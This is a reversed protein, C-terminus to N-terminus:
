QDEGSGDRSTQDTGATDSVTATIASDFITGPEEGSGPVGQHERLSVTVDSWTDESRAWHDLVQMWLDREAWHLGPWALLTQLYQAVNTRDPATHAAMWQSVATVLDPLVTPDADLTARGLSCEQLLQANANEPYRHADLLGAVTFWRRMPLRDAPAPPLQLRSQWTALFTHGDPILDWVMRGQQVRAIVMQGERMSLTDRLAPPITVMFRKQVRTLGVM